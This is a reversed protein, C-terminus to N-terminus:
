RLWIVRVCIYLHIFKSYYQGESFYILSDCQKISRMKKNSIMFFFLRRRVFYISIGSALGKLIINNSSSTISPNINQKYKRCRRKLIQRYYYFFITKIFLIILKNAILIQKMVSRNLLSFFLKNVPFTYQLFRVIM